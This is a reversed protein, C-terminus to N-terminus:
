KLIPIKVYISTGRNENSLIKLEGSLLNTRERMMSLGFGRHDNLKLKINDIDFGIGNDIVSVEMYEEFFTINIIVKTSKSYKKSNNLAEQLIRFVTLTIISNINEKRSENKFDINLEIIFDVEDLLKDIHREITPILGLDDLSMPRLNYILRRTEDITSRIHSRLTQLELRTRDRDKDLLKLCLETKIILNSLSQAPGDHMDRAIRERELEQGEIVKLGLIEKDHIIDIEKTLNRLEGSLVNNAMHFNNSLKDAKEAIRHVSKLHSELENRRKIINMEREKEVVLNVRIKDTEDYIDKMEEQSYATYNKNVLLLKSRNIKYLKELKEVNDIISSAETKLREFEEELLLFEKKAYRSIEKIEDNSHNLSKITNEIIEDLKVFKENYMCIGRYIGLDRSM